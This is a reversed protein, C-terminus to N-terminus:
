FFEGHEELFKAASAMIPEALSPRCVVLDPLFTNNLNYMLRRGDLRSAFLGAAQAIGVPAANDWEYQGGAHLYVDNDGLLVSITKAGCSGMRVVEMGLEEAVHLAVKPTSNSSIVMRNTKPGGVRRVEGTHFVKGLDPIGVAAHAIEGDVALAVHVAWDQRGEAYERTGDLPDVIWVRSHSLRDRDDPAEESLVADNPRHEALCRSIWDQALHDGAKGLEKGRLLGVNRVGKLIDGTGQALRLALTADDLVATM